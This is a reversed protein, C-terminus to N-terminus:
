PTIPSGLIAYARARNGEVHLDDLSARGWLALQVQHAPGTILADCPADPDTGDGALVYVDDPTEDLVIRVGPVPPQLLGRRVQRPFFMSVVEDVGDAAFIADGASPEGLAQRADVLHIATEHAQRRYWFSVQRPRPGFTWAPADPATSALLEVLQSSGDAFWGALAAPEDPGDPMDLPEGAVIAGHAWRHVRGVHLVLDHLTWGPCTPVVTALDAGTIIDAFSTSDRELAVLYAERTLM